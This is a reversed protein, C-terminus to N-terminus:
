KMSNNMVDGDNLRRADVMAGWTFLLVQRFPTEHAVAKDGACPCRQDSHCTTM